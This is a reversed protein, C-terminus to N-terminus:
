DPHSAQPGQALAAFVLERASDFEFRRIHRQLAAAQAGLGAALLAANADHLDLASADDEGLLRGLSQLVVRLQAPDVPARDSGAQAPLLTRLLAVLQALARALADALQDRQIPDASGGRLLSELQEATSALPRLGLTGALGKLTHARRLARDVHGGALEQQLALGDEGHDRLFAQM